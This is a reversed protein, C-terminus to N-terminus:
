KRDWVVVFGIVVSPLVIMSVIFPINQSIQEELSLTKMGNNTGAWANIGDGTDWVNEGSTVVPRTLLILEKWVSCDGDSDICIKLGPILAFYFIVFFNIVFLIKFTIKM